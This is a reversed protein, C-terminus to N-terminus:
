NQPNPPLVEELERAGGGDVRHVDLHGLEVVERDAGILYRDDVDLVDVCGILYRDDVDLVDVCGILYRDDVDL